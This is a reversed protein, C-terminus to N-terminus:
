ASVRPNRMGLKQRATIRLAEIADDVAGARQLAAGLLENAAARVREVEVGPRALATGVRNLASCEESTLLPIPLSRLHTAEVKLGGGGLVTATSELMASAWSSNLLAMLAANSLTTAGVPWFTSFNADVIHGRNLVALPHLHNIRAMFVEPRHRPALPPLQYWYRPQRDPRAPDASRINTVVASLEPVSRESGVSGTSMLAARRVLSAAAGSLPLVDTRVGQRLASDIDEPLAHGGLLLVRGPTETAVLEGSLDQQKRIVPALLYGPLRLPTSSLWPDVEVLETESEDGLAMCYFFRNAGTRLGQGAQWGLEGLTTFAGAGLGLHNAMESPLHAVQSTAKM